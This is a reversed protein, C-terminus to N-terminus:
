AVQGEKGVTVGVGSHSLVVTGSNYVKYTNRGDTVRVVNSRVSRVTVPKSVTNDCMVAEYTLVVSDDRELDDADDADDAVVYLPRFDAVVTFGDAHNGSRVTKKDDDLIYAEGRPVDGTVQVAVKSDNYVTTVTGSVTIEDGNMPNFCVVTIEDGNQADYNTLNRKTAAM